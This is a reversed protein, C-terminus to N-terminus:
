SAPDDKRPNTRTTRLSESRAGARRPSSVHPATPLTSRTPPEVVRPTRPAETDAPRSGDISAVYQRARLASRYARAATVVLGAALTALVFIWPPSSGALLSAIVIGCVIAVVLVWIMENTLRRVCRLYGVVVWRSLQAAPARRVDLPPPPIQVRSSSAGKVTKSVAGNSREPVGGLRTLTGARPLVPGASPSPPIRVRSAPIVGGLAKAPRRAPPFGM